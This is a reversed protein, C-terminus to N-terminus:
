IYAWIYIYERIYKTVECVLTTHKPAMQGLSIAPHMNQRGTCIPPFDISRSVGTCCPSLHDTVESKVHLQKLPLPPAM